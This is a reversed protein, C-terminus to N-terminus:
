RKYRSKHENKLKSDEFYANREHREFNRKNYEDRSDRFAKYKDCESHCGFYRNTCDKCPSEPRIKM